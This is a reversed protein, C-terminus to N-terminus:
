WLPFLLKYFKPPVQTLGNIFKIHQRQQYENLSQLTLIFYPSYFCAIDLYRKETNAQVKLWGQAAPVIITGFITVKM